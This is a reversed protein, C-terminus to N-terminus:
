KNEESVLNFLIDFSDILFNIECDSLGREKLNEYISKLSNGECFLYGLVYL